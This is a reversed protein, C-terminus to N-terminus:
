LFCGIEDMIAVFGSRGRVRAFFAQRDQLARRTRHLTSSICGHRLQTDQFRAQSNPTDRRPFYAYGLASLTKDRNYALAKRYIGGDSSFLRVLVSHPRWRASFRTSQEAEGAPAKGPDIMVSNVGSEGLSHPFRSGYFQTERRTSDRLMHLQHPGGIALCLIHM